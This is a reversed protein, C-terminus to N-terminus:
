SQVVLPFAEWLAEIAEESLLWVGNQAVNIGWSGPEYFVYTGKSGSVSKEADTMPRYGGEFRAHGDGSPEAMIIAGAIAAEYQPGVPGGVQVPINSDLCAIVGAVISSTGTGLIQYEPLTLRMGATQLEAVNPEPTPGGATNDPSDTYSDSGPAGALTGAVMGIPCVGWRRTADQSDQLDAGDDTLVPLNGTPNAAARVDAYTTAAILEPSPDFPLPIGAAAFATRLGAARSHAHCKSTQRQNTRPMYFSSLDAQGKPGAKLAAAIAPHQAAGMRHAKKWDPTRKLGKGPM